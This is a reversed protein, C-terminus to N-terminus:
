NDVISMFHGSNLSEHLTDKGSMGNDKKKVKM